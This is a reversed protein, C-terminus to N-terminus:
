VMILRRCKQRAQFECGALQCKRRVMVAAGLGVDLRRGSRRPLGFRVFATGVVYGPPPPVLRASLRSFAVCRLWRNSQVPVYVTQPSAPEIVIANKEM